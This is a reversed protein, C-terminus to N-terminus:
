EGLILNRISEHRSWAAEAFSKLVSTVDKGSMDKEPKRWYDIDFYLGIDPYDEHKKFFLEMQKKAMPGSMTNFNGLGDVFNLPGGIDILKVSEGLVAKGKDTISLFKTAYKNCLEEFKGSFSTCFKYRVGIREVGIPDGFGDLGFLFKFLKLAQDPFYNSTPADLTVFGANRFGVFGHMNKEKSFIDIRNEIIGWDSLGMHKSIAEAWTGRYDLIKANPKYRIEVTHESIVKEGM